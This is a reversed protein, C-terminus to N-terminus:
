VSRYLDDPVRSAEDLILLDVGSFSRITEERGPLAVLRSGTALELESQNSKIAAIPQGLAQYAAIVKRFLEHSQRESPAVLLVLSRPVTLLQHLAVAAVTTSKGTQRACNLLIYSERARLLDRQWPDPTLDQAHLIVSPELLLALTRRANM